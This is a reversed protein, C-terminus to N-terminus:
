NDSFVEIHDCTQLVAPVLLNGSLQPNYYADYSYHGVHYHLIIYFTFSHHSMSATAKMTYGESRPPTYRRLNNITVGQRLQRRQNSQKDEGTFVAM